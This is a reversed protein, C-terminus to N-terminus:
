TLASIRSRVAGNTSAMPRSSVIGPTPRRVASIRTASITVSMSRNGVVAWRADQGPHARAAVLSGALAAAPPRAPAVPPELGGQDLHRLRRGPGPVSVEGRLVAPEGGTATALLRRARDPVGDQDDGVVQEPAVVVGVTVETAAVEILPVAPGDLM